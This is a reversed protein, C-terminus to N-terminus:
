KIGRNRWGLQQFDDAKLQQVALSVSNVCENTRIVLENTYAGGVSKTYNQQLQMLATFM